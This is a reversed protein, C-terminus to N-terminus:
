LIYFHHYKMLLNNKIIQEWIPNIPENFTNNILWDKDEKKDNICSDIYNQGYIYRKVLTERVKQIGGPTAYTEKENTSTIITQAYSFHLM